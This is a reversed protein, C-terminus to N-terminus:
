PQFSSDEPGMGSDSGTLTEAEMVALSLLYALLDLSAGNALKALERALDRIYRVLEANEASM